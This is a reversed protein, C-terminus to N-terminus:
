LKELWALLEQRFWDWDEKQIVMYPRAPIGKEPDGFQHVTAYRLTSGTSIKLMTERVVNYHISRRLTGTDTLIKRGSQGSVGAWAETGAKTLPIRYPGVLGSSFPYRKGRAVWSKRKYLWTRITQPKLPKWKTPRGEVDFNKQISNMLAEGFSALVARMGQLQTKKELAEILRNVEEPNSVIIRFTM